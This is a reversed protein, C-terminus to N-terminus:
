VLVWNMEYHWNITNDAAGTVQLYVDNGSVALAVTWGAQDEFSSIISQGVISTTGAIDKVLGHLIYSASDGAAGASGGGRRALVKVYFLASDNSSITVKEPTSANTPTANITTLGGARYSSTAATGIPSLILRGDVGSSGAAGPSIYIDGGNGTGAGDGSGLYIYGGEGNTNGSGAIAQVYGGDGSSTRSSVELNISSGINAIDSKIDIDGDAWTSIGGQSTIYLASTSLSNISSDEAQSTGITLEGNNAISFKLKSSADFEDNTNFQIQGTSGAAETPDSISNQTIQTTSYTITDGRQIAGEPESLNVVQDYKRETFQNPAIDILDNTNKVPANDLPKQTPDQSIPLENYEM